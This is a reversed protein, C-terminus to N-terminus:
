IADYTKLKDIARVELDPTTWTIISGEVAGPGFQGVMVASFTEFNKKDEPLISVDLQIFMKWLKGEHFFFFRRNNKGGDNEWREMMAENTGHVFEEEVISVDWPSPKNMEFTVYTSKVRSIESRREKRIRDQQAVDTTAKLREDYKEAVQKELTGLVEDKTMGFKFGALRDQMKKKNEPSVPPAAKKAPVVAKKAVPAKKAAPAKKTQAFAPTAGIALGLGLLTTLLIRSTRFRPM